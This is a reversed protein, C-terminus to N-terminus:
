KIHKKLANNILGLTIKYCLRRKKYSGQSKLNCWFAHFKMTYSTSCYNKLQDINKFDLYSEQITCLEKKLNKECLLMAQLAFYTNLCDFSKPRKNCQIYSTHAWGKWCGAVSLLSRSNYFSHFSPKSLFQQAVDCPLTEVMFLYCLQHTLHSQQNHTNINPM